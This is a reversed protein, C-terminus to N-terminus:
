RQEYMIHYRYRLREFIREYKKLEKRNINLKSCLWERDIDVVSWWINDTTLFEYASKVNRYYQTILYFQKPNNSQLSTINYRGKWDEVAQTIIACALEKM